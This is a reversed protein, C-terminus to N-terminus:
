LLVNTWIVSTLPASVTEKLEPPLCTVASRYSDEGYAAMFDATAAASAALVFPIL